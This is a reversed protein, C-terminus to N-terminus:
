RTLVDFERWYKFLTIHAERPITALYLIKNQIVTPVSNFLLLPPIQNFKHKKPDTSLLVAKEENIIIDSIKTLFDWIIHMLNRTYFKIAM